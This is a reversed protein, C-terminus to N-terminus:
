NFLSISKIGQQWLQKALERSKRVQDLNSLDAIKLNPIGSQRTGYVEGPGRSQLDFEAIEIGNDHAAFFELRQDAMQSTNSESPFLFCWSQKNGRGVRGRIQHLQALGFREAGEIIMVTANPVDIGVEIVSTSVLIDVTGATFQQMVEQKEAQKMQGHLLALKLDPFIENQLHEFTAVASKIELKESENVLPCIWYVQDGSKVQGRVWDYSDVRKNEPVLRTLIPLRGAPKTTINSLELDGFLGLALTRPIPTATMNLFHPYNKASVKLPALLEERQGVGFRHQEDVVVLGLNEILDSKRALVASTGILIDAPERTTTSSTVLEIKFPFEGLFKQFTRFHQEALVTTPALIVTQYGALKAIFAGIIAVITKGSGVDGQLLRNMPEHKRLDTIIEAMAQQQDITLKFPLRQVFEGVQTPDFEFAIGTQKDAKQREIELKLQLNVLEAVGLKQRAPEIEEEAKPFHIAQVAETIKPTPSLDSLEDKLDAVMELQDVIHKIRNRLWKITVGSTLPYQPSLRGLHVLERGEVIPEFNDPYFELRTKNIKAKGQFMYEQDPNLAKKLYPQNFWTAAINGSADSLVAKQLTRGGRIRISSVSKPYARVVFTGDATLNGIDSVETTDRHYRPFHTLLDRVTHLGLKSLVREYKVNVQPLSTVSDTLLM